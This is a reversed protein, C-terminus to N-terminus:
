ESGHISPSASQAPAVHTRTWSRGPWPTVTLRAPEDPQTRVTAADLYLAQQGLVLRQKGVDVVLDTTFVFANDGELPQGPAQELVTTLVGLRRDTISEGRLIRAVNGWERAQAVTVAALDPVLVTTATHQQIEHLARLAALEPDASGDASDGRDDGDAVVGDGFPMFPGHEAAVELAAGRLALLFDVGDIVSAVPKGALELGSFRVRMAAPEFDHLAEFAFAGGDHEGSLRAGRSGVTPADMALRVTAPEAGARSARLRLVYRRSADQATPGIRVSGTQQTGGFGGPLDLSITASGQPAAFPRGYEAFLRLSERLAPDESVDFQLGIPIPRERVSEHCRAHVHWTVCVEGDSVQATFVLSGPASQPVAADRDVAAGVAFDYRYLPDQDNLTRYLAALGDGVAAAAASAGAANRAGLVAMLDRHTQELRAKGDGLYYDVVGPFESALADLWALGKWECLDFPGGKTLDAFKLEDTDSADLPMTLYWNRVSFHGDAVAQVLTDYSDKVKRWQGATLPRDFRKVQYVDIRGDDLPVFVDVGKDGQGPRRRAAREHRRCLLMSVVVEVDEGPRGVLASPM